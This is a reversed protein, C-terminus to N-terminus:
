SKILLKKSNKVYQYLFCSFSVLMQAWEM